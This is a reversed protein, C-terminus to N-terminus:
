YKEQRAMFLKPEEVSGLFIYDGYHISNKM